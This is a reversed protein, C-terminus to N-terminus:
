PTKKFPTENKKVKKDFFVIHAVKNSYFLKAYRRNGKKNIIVISRVSRKNKKDLVRWYSSIKYKDYYEDIFEEFADNEEASFSQIRNQASTVNYSFLTIAIIFFLLIANNFNIIPRSNKM